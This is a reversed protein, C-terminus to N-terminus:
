YMTEDTKLLVDCMQVVLNYKGQFHLEELVQYMTMYTHAQPEVLLNRFVQEVRHIKKKSVKKINKKKMRIKREFFSHMTIYQISVLIIEFAKHFTM